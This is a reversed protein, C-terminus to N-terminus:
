LGLSFFAWLDSQGLLASWAIDFGFQLSLVGLHLIEREDPSKLLQIHEFAREIM